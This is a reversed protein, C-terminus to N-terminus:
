ALSRAASPQVLGAFALQSQALLTRYDSTEIEQGMLRVDFPGDYGAELLTSVVSGLPLRGAGLRCCEHDITPEGRRDSLFVVAMHKASAALLDCADEDASLHYTDFALKLYPSNYDDLLDMVSLLDTLFTWGIACAPHMPGLALPVECHEALPLLEDLAARLVRGAHRYTHNNRGGPYIVLCGARLAAALRLAEATDAITERLTRGDSGTFGGACSLSSVSLGSTALLDVASEQEWDALKGQWVGISRYGAQRYNEVDEALTWRFTTVENMSLLCMFYFVRASFYHCLAPPGTTSM